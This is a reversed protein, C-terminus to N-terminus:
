IMALTVVMMWLPMVEGHFETLIQNSELVSSITEFVTGGFKLTQLPRYLALIFPGLSALYVTQLFVGDEDMDGEEMM